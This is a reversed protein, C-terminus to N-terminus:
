PYQMCERSVLGMLEPTVMHSLSIKKDGVLFIPINGPVLQFERNTRVILMAYYHACRRRLDGAERNNVWGNM